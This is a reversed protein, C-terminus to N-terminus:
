LFSVRSQTHNLSNPPDEDRLRSSLAATAMPPADPQMNFPQSLSNQDEPSPPPPAQSRQVIQGIANEFPFASHTWLPGYVKVFHTSTHCCTFILQVINYVQM